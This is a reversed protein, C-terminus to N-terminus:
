DLRECLWGKHNAREGNAVKVMNPASLKHKKCFSTLGRDTFYINGDPDVIKYNKINIKGTSTKSRKEITSKKTKRKKRAKSLKEKHEKSFKKGKNSESIKRRTEESLKKGKKSKSVITKIGPITSIRGRGGDTLNAIKYNNKRLQKIHEIEKKDIDEEKIGSEVVLFLDEFLLGYKKIIRRAKNYKYLTNGRDIEWKHARIRNKKNSTIGVYFPKKNQDIFYYLLFESKKSM